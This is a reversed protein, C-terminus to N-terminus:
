ERRPISEAPGRRHLQLDHGGDNIPVREDEQAARRVDAVAAVCLLAWARPIANGMLFAYGWPLKRGAHYVTVLKVVQLSSLCCLAWTAYFCVGM